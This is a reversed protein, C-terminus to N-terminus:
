VVELKSFYTTLTFLQRQQWTNKEDDHIQNSSTYTSSKGESSLTSAAAASFCNKSLKPCLAATVVSVCLCVSYLCIKINVLMRLMYPLRSHTNFHVKSTSLETGCWLSQQALCVALWLCRLWMEKWSCSWQGSMLGWSFKLRRCSTTTTASTWSSQLRFYFSKINTKSTFESM